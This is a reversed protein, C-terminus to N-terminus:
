ALVGGSGRWAEWDGDSTDGAPTPATGSLIRPRVRVLCRRGIFQSWDQSSRFALRGDLGVTRSMASQSWLLLSSSSRARHASRQGHSQLSGRHRHLGRLLLVAPDRSPAAVPRQGDGARVSAGPSSGRRVWLWLNKLPGGFWAVVGLMAALLIGSVVQSTVDSWDIGM